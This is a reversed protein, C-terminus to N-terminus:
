FLSLLTIFTFKEIFSNDDSSFEGINKDLGVNLVQVQELETFAHSTSLTAM